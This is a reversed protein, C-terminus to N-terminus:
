RPRCSWSAPWFNADVYTLNAGESINLVGSQIAVANGSFQGADYTGRDSIMWQGLGSQIPSAEALPPFVVTLLVMIRMTRMPPSRGPPMSTDNFLFTPGLPGVPHCAQLFALKLGLCFRLLFIRGTPVMQM